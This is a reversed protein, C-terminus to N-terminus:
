NTYTRLYRTRYTYWVPLTKFSARTEHPKKTQIPLKKKTDCVKRTFTLVNRSFLDKNSESSENCVRTIHVNISYFWLVYTACYCNVVNILYCWLVYCMVRVNVNVVIVYLIELLIDYLLLLLQNAISSSSSGGDGVDIVVIFQFSSLFPFLSDDSVVAYFSAAAAVVVVITNRNTGCSSSNRHIWRSGVIACFLLVPILM